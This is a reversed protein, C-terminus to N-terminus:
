LGTSVHIVRVTSKNLKDKDEDGWKKRFTPMEPKNVFFMSQVM